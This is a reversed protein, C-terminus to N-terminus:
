TGQPLTPLTPMVPTSGVPGKTILRMFVTLICITVGYMPLYKQLNFTSFIPSVDIGAAQLGDYLELYIYPLSAIGAFIITRFGKIKNNITSWFAM